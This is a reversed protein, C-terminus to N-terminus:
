KGLMEHLDTYYPVSWKEGIRRAKEGDLDCVAGLRAGEIAGGGLLESHRVAIRGCGVLAFSLM